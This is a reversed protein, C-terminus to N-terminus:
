VVLSSPSFVAFSVGKLALIAADSCRPGTNDDPFKLSDKLISNRMKEANRGDFPRKHYLLEYATIGLSWWDIQWSYGKKNIVQPAMYAM